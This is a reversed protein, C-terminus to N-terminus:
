KLNTVLEKIHLPNLGGQIRMEVGSPLRMEVTMFPAQLSELAKTKERKSQQRSTLQNSSNSIPFSLEMFRGEASSSSIQAEKDIYKRKSHYFQSVPIGLEQLRSSKSINNDKCYQEISIVAEKSIM